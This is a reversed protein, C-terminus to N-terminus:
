TAASYGRGRQVWQTGSSAASCRWLAAGGGQRGPGVGCCWRVWGRRIGDGAGAGAGGREVWGHQQGSVGVAKVRAADVDALAQRAAARVGDIWDAPRQEARGPVDTPLLSLAHAGRGTIRKAQSDYVVAKVGQTGVDLGLYLAM